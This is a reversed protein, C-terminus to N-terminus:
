STQEIAETLNTASNAAEIEMTNKRSNLIIM